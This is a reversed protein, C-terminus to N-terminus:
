NNPQPSKADWRTYGAAQAEEESAFQQEANTRASWPSDETYYLMSTANGQVPGPCPDPTSHTVAETIAAIEEPNPRHAVFAVDWWPCEDSDALLPPLDSPAAATGLRVLDSSQPDNSESGSSEPDSSEPDSSESDSAPESNAATNIQTLGSDSESSLANVKRVIRLYTFGMGLIFAVAVLWWSINM